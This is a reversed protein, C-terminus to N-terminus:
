TSARRRDSFHCWIRDVFSLDAKGAGARPARRRRAGDAHANEAVRRKSKRGWRGEATRFISWQPPPFCVMKVGGWGAARPCTRAPVLGRTSTQPAAPARARARARTLLQVGGAGSDSQDSPRPRSRSCASARCRARAAKDGRGDKKTRAPCSPIAPHCYCCAHPSRCCCCWGRDPPPDLAPITPLPRVCM